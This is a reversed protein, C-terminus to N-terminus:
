NFLPVTLSKKQLKTVGQVTVRIQYVTLSKKYFNQPKPLGEILNISRVVTLPM